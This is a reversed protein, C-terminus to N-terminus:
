TIRKTLVILVEVVMLVGFIRVNYKALWEPLYIDFNAKREQTYKEAIKTIPCRWCNIAIIFIELAVLSAPVLFWADFRGIFAFYFALFNSGAMLAWIITHMTKLLSLM